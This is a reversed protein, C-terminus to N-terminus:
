PEGLKRRDAKGNDTMPMEDLFVIIKPVMYRPVFKALETKIMGTMEHGNGDM